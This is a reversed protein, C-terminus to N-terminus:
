GKAGYGDIALAGTVVDLLEVTINEQRLIREQKELAELKDGINHDGAQMTALRAGNESALGEMIAHTLEAFLYEGALSRLLQERALQHVPPVRRESGILLAPDLPLIRRAEIAYGEGGRYRAFVIRADSTDAMRDAVRRAVGAVGRVHTTGPTQWALPQGGEAALAAGRRGIIGLWQAPGFLDRAHDLL